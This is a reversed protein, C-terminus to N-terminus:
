RVDHEGGGHESEGHEHVGVHEHTHTQSPHHHTHGHVLNAAILLDHNSLIDAPTGQAVMHHADDFVYVWDAMEEVLALDHTATVLTVDQHVNLDYLFDVLQAQSRPDLSTTPEDLLLVDPHVALVSALAVKKKEGGSLRHPPRNALKEIGLLALAERARACVEAAPLGLHLPGFVVDDYVTASFLQVDPDQFVLGVRRRLAFTYAEDELMSQSLPVGLVTLTGADPLYLADLLKLLTSKGSGNAGLLAIKRGAVIELSIDELATQGPGYAFSVHEAKFVTNDV